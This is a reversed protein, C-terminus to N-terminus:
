INVAPLTLSVSIRRASRRKFRDRLQLALNHSRTLSEKKPSPIDVWHSPYNKQLQVISYLHVYFRGTCREGTSTCLRPTPRGLHENYNALKKFGSKLNQLM